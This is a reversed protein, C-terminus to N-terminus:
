QDEPLKSRERYIVHLVYPFSLASAVVTVILTAFAAGISGYRVTLVIDLIINTIGSLISVLLTYGPKNLGLLINTSTTRFSALFFFSITLIRFCPVADSYVDGWLLKVIVPAMVILFASIGAGTAIMLTYIKRVNERIWETDESHSIFVPLFVVLMSHPIFNMNEPITAGVKYSALVSADSVILAILTIDIRYLINNLASTMGAKVSYKLLRTKEERVLRDSRDGASAVIDRCYTRGVVASVAYAAYRGLITGTVGAALCGAVAFLSYLVSNLNLYRAYEKNKQASRLAISYYDVVYSFVPLLSLEFIYKRSEEIGVKGALGYTLIQISLLIQVGLGFLLGYRFFQKKKAPEINKSCNYLLGSNIGLGSFLVAISFINFAGTFIGYEAKTLLRVIFINAIFAICKNIITSGMVHLLGKHILAKLTM